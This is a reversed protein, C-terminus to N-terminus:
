SHSVAQLVFLPELLPKQKRLEGALLRSNLPNTASHLVPNLALQLFKEVSQAQLLNM